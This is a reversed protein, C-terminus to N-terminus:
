ELETCSYVALAKVRGGCTGGYREYGSLPPSALYAQNCADLTGTFCEQAYGDLVPDAGLTGPPLAATEEVPGYGYGGLAGGETGPVSEGMTSGIGRGVDEARGALVSSVVLAALLLGVSLVAAGAVAAVVLNRTDSRPAAARLPPDMDASAPWAPTRAVWDPAPPTWGSPSAVDSPRQPHSM